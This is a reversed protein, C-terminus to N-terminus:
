GVYVQRVLYGYDRKLIKAYWKASPHKVNVWEHYTNNYYQWQGQM